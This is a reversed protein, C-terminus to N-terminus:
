DRGVWVVAGRELAPLSFEVQGGKAEGKLTQREGLFPLFTLSDGMTQPIKVLIGKAPEPVAVKSPVLGGFNALFIHPRGNVLGFNAAVTPPAELEIDSKTKAAKLFDEPLHASAGLFDSMLAAYYSGAPDQPLLALNPGIIKTADPGLVVLRGGREIFGALSKREAEDLVSVNPLVLCEGRFAELTRPTVVELERHAQLLVVLAGRYSPLFSKAAYDRSKPSFYVGVPHMPLRPLYLKKENEEIWEFIEKRTPPDNSRAMEHGQADWFNAGAMVISMALNKM